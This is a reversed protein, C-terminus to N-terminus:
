NGAATLAQAWTMSTASGAACNTGSQGNSCRAWMLGTSDDTVTGDGNDTLSYDFTLGGHVLRVANNVARTSLNVAGSNFAVLWASASYSAYPSSSWFDALKTNPFYGTDIVSGLSFKSYDVIGVLEKLNPVRWDKFGCLGSANMDQTYKETDCRGTAYCIGGSATGNYGDISNSDYWSYIWKQDRLGGDSTKVEWILGTVNDRVCTHNSVSAPLVNGNADLKTFDFSNSGYEADQGPFGPVPCPLGNHTADSGSCTTIGTDNLSSAQASPLFVAFGIVIVLWIFCCRLNLM